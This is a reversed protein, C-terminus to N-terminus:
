HCSQGQVQICQTSLTSMQDRDVIVESSTVCLPHSLEVIEKTQRNATDLVVLRRINAALLVRHVDGVAGVAFEPEVVQAVIAHCGCALLLDLTTIIESDNVLHIGDQNIFRPGRQDDASRRGNGSMLIILPLRKNVLEHTLLRHQAISNCAFRDLHEFSLLAVTKRRFFRCSNLNRWINSLEGGFQPNIQGVNRRCALIILDSLSVDTVGSALLIWTQEHKLHFEPLRPVLLEEPHHFIRFFAPGNILRFQLEVM